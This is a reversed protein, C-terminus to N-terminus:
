WRIKTIRKCRIMSTCVERVGSGGSGYVMFGRTM